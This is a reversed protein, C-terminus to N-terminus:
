DIAAGDPGPVAPSAGPLTFRFTAGKGLGESEAWIRGGHSEVIRRVLALGLGAGETHTDFRQFLGFVRELNEPAIGQGNDRVFLITDAGQREFGVDIRPDPRDGLFKIANDLLNQFVEVLRPRDVTLVLPSPTVAIKAGRRVAHGAVLRLAETAVDQLLVVTSLNSVRGIRSLELLEGLLHSVKDAATRIFGLDMQVRASDGGVLDKELYGAFAQITVIPSKLDHSVSYTFRELEANKDRLEQSHRARETIDDFLVYINHALVATHARVKRTQGNRCVVDLSQTEVPLADKRARRIADLWRALIENRSAADPVVSGFWDAATPIDERAYGFLHTFQPNVYEVNGDADTWAVAIPSAEMLGRLKIESERLTAEARRREAVEARLSENTRRMEDSQLSLWVRMRSMELHTGVRARLEEMLFPKTIFDVAGMQLGLVREEVEAAASLFVVPIDHSEPRARLRRLVEFGDMDPMRIDLLILDPMLSEVSALAAEGSNAARVEYGEGALLDIVLALNAPTDDVVLVTGGNM